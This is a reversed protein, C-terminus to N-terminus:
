EPDPQALANQIIRNAEDYKKLASLKNLERMGEDGIISLVKQIRILQLLEETKSAEEPLHLTDFIAKAQALHELASQFQRKFGLNQGIMFLNYARDEHNKLKEFVPLQQKQRIQLAGDLDGHAQFLEAIKGLTVASSHADGLREYVPLVESQLLKLANDYDKRAKCIDAVRSLTLARSRVDGLKEFVPLVEDQLIQSAQDFDSRALLIDTVKLRTYARERVDGLKEFVPLVEDQLIRSAEDFNGRAKLIESVYALTVAHSRKDGREEFSNRVDELIRLVEDLKGQQKLISAVEILTIAYIKNEGLKKFQPLLETQYCTLAEDSRGQQTIFGARYFLIFLREPDNMPCKALAAEFHREATEGEGFYQAMRGQALEIDFEGLSEPPLNNLRQKAQHFLYQNALINQVYGEARAAIKPLNGNKALRVLEDALPISKRGEKLWWEDYLLTAAREHWRTEDTPLADRLLDILLEPVFYVSEGKEIPDPATELLGIASAREFEPDIGAIERTLATLASRPAFTAYVAAVGLFRKVTEPQQRLLEEALVSELLKTKTSEMVGFIRNLNLFPDALLNYLWGLLRANGAALAIANEESAFLGNLENSTGIREKLERRHAAILKKLDTDKFTNVQFQKFRDGSSHDLRFRSTILIRHDSGTVAEALISLVRGHEEGLVPAGTVDFEIKGQVPAGTDDFEIKGEHNQYNREFDDLVFLLSTRAQFLLNKFRVEFPLDETRELSLALQGPAEEKGLAKDLKLLLDSETLKGVLVVPTLGPALRDCLRAAMSTKGNGGLGHLVVGTQDPRKLARLCTQLLRRRGVFRERSVARLQLTTPDLFVDAFTALSSAERGETDPRTVFAGPLTEGVFLRLLHWNAPFPNQKRLRAEEERMARYTNVLATFLSAGNSLSGYFATAANIAITDTVPRGWGLVANAGNEILQEALSGAAGGRIAEATKCGSLFVLPPMPSLAAVIDAPTALLNLGSDDETLFVPTEGDHDAHGSLHVVDFPSSANREITKRLEALTGSEEVVLDFRSGVQDAATLIDGEEKEFNLVPEVNEPSTAMFLVRLPRNAPIPADANDRPRAVRVPVVPRNERTILFDTGDHLTEWPLHGLTDPATIALAVPENSDPFANLEDAFHKDANLWDYLARGMALLEDPKADSFRSVTDDALKRIPDVALDFPHANVDRGFAVRIADSPLRKLSLFLTNTM